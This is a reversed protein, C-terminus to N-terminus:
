LLQAQLNAGTEMSTFYFSPAIVYGAYGHMQSLTDLAQGLWTLDSHGPCDDVQNGSRLQTEFVFTLVFELTNRARPPEEGYAVSPGPQGTDAIRAGASLTGIGTM